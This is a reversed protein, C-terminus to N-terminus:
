HLMNFLDTNFSVTLKTEGPREWSLSLFCLCSTVVNLFLNFCFTQLNNKPILFSVLLVDSFSVSM